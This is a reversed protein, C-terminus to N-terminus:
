SCGLSQQLQRAEDAQATASYFRMFTGLVRCANTTDNAERFLQAAKLLGEISRQGGGTFFRAHVMEYYAAADPKRGRAEEAAGAAFMAEAKIDNIPERSQAEIVSRLITIAVDPETRALASALEVAARHRWASWSFKQNMQEFAEKAAANNRSRVAVAVRGYAAVAQATQLRPFETAIREFVERARDTQGDQLLAVAFRELDDAGLRIGTGDGYVQSMKALAGANDGCNRMQGAQAFALAVGLAPHTQIKEEALQGIQQTVEDCTMIGAATKLSYLRLIENLTPNVAPTEPYEDLVVRADTMAQQWTANWTQELEPDGKITIFAGIRNLRQISIRAIALQADAAIQTGPAGEIISQYLARAEDHKNQRELIGGQFFRASNVLPSQPFEDILKQFEAIARDAAQPDTAMDAMYLSAIAQRAFPAVENQKYQSIVREFTEIAQSKQGIQQQIRGVQFLVTPAQSTNPFTKVFDMYSAIAEPFKQANELLQGITFAATIKVNESSTDSLVKRILDLGEDLRGARAKAEGLSILASQSEEAEPNKAVYERIRKEADDLRGLMALAQGIALLYRPAFRSNPYDALGQELVALAREANKTAIYANGVLLGLNEGLPDKPYKERFEIALTDARDALGQLAFSITRVYHTFKRFNDSKGFNEIHNLVVRAQDNRGLQVLNLAIKSYADAVPDPRQALAALQSTLRERNQLFLERSIQQRDFRQRNEQIRRNLEQELGTTPEVQRFVNIAEEHDGMSTLVEGVQFLADNALGPREQRGEAVAKQFAEKAQRATELAQATQGLSRLQSAKIFLAAGRLFVAEIRLLGSPFERLQADVQEIVLDPKEAFLRGLARWYMAEEKQAPSLPASLAKSLEDEAKDLDAQRAPGEKKQAIAIFTKGLQLQAFAVAEPTLGRTNALERFVEVARDLEGNQFLALGLNTRARLAAPSAPFGRILEEYTKIAETLNGDRFFDDARRELQAENSQALINSGCFATFFLTTLFKKALWKLM